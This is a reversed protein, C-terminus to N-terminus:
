GPTRRRVVDLCTLKRMNFVLQVKGISEKSRSCSKDTEHHLSILLMPVRTTDQNSSRVKPTPPLYVCVINGKACLVSASRIREREDRMHIRKIM